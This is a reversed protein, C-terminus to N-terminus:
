NWIWQVIVLYIILGAGLIGLVIIAVEIAHDIMRWRQLNKKHKLEKRTMKM